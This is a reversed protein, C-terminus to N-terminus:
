RAYARSSEIKSMCPNTESAARASGGFPAQEVHHLIRHQRGSLPDVISVRGSIVGVAVFHYRQVEVMGLSSVLERAIIRDGIAGIFPSQSFEPKPSPIFFAAQYVDTYAGASWCFCAAGNLTHMVAFM